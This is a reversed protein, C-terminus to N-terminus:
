RLALGVSKLSTYEQSSMYLTPSNPHGASLFLAELGDLVTLHALENRKKAGSEWAMLANEKKLFIWSPELVYNM